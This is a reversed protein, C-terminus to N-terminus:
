STFLDYLEEASPLYPDAADSGYLIDELVVLTEPLTYRTDVVFHATPRFGAVIPPTSTIDWSFTTAETSDSLTAHTKGTSSALANYVIHIKYGADTGQTDNGILTRYTFSFRARPQQTIFLGNQIPVNGECIAFEPPCQYAEITAEFEEAGAFNSIKIGDYYVPKTEGGTPNETVSVLGAWPVGIENPLYLVGHDVGTEYLRTGSDNWSLRAM